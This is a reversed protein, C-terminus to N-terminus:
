QQTRLSEDGTTQRVSNRAKGGASDPVLEETPAANGPQEKPLEPALEQMILNLRSERHTSAARDKQAQMMTERMDRSVQKLKRLDRKFDVGSPKIPM